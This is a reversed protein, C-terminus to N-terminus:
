EAFFGKRRIGIGDVTLPSQDITVDGASARPLRIVYVFLALCLLMSFASIFCSIFLIMILGELQGSHVESLLTSYGQLM